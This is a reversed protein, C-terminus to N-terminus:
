WGTTKYLGKVPEFWEQLTKIASSARELPTADQVAPKAGEYGLLVVLAFIGLWSLTQRMLGSKSFSGAELRGNLASEALLGLHKM